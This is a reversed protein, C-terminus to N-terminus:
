VLHIIARLYPDCQFALSASFFRSRVCVVATDLRMSYRRACTAGELCNERNRMIEEGALLQRLTVPGAHRAPSHCSSFSAALAHYRAQAQASTPPQRIQRARTHLAAEPRGLVKGDVADEAVLGDVAGVEGFEVLNLTRGAIGRRAQPCIEPHM